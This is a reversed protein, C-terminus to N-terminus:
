PESLLRRTHLLALNGVHQRHAAVLHEVDQGSSLRIPRLALFAMLLGDRYHLARTRPNRKSQAESMMRLGAEVLRNSEVLRDM